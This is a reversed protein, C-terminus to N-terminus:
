TSGKHQFQARIREALAELSLQEKGFAKASEVLRALPLLGGVRRKVEARLRQDHGPRFDGGSTWEGCGCACTPM